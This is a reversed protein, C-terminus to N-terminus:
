KGGGACILPLTHVLRGVFAFRIENANEDRWWAGCISTLVTLSM